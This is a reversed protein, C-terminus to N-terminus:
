AVQRPSEKFALSAVEKGLQALVHTYVSAVGSQLPPQLQGVLPLLLGVTHDSLSSWLITALQQDASLKVLVLGFLDAKPYYALWSSFVLAVQPTPAIPELLTELEKRNLQPLIAAANHPIHLYNWLFDFRKANLCIRMIEDRQVIKTLAALSQDILGARLFFDAAERYFRYDKWAMKEYVKGILDLKNEKAYFEIAKDYRGNREYLVGARNLLNMRLLVHAADDIFGNHELVDVAKRQFGISEFIQASERFKKHQFLAEAHAHLKRQHRNLKAYLDTKRVITPPPNMGPGGRMQIAKDSMKAHQQAFLYRVVIARVFLYILVVVLCFAPILYKAAARIDIEEIRM